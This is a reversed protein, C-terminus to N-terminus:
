RGCPNTAVVKQGYAIANTDANANDIFFLGPEASYTSCFAILDWIDKAKVTRHVRVPLGRAEWERVDGMDRWETDYIHKEEETFNETDPFRLDYTGDNKVAEMFENTINVSINAGTLFDLDEVEYRGGDTLIKRAHDKVKATGNTGEMISEYLEREMQTLPTFKLKKEAEAIVEPDKSNKILHRLVGPNQMKSIIFEVIDPHWDSMMIMQAM